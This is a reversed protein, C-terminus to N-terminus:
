LACVLAMKKAKLSTLPKNGRTKNFEACESQTVNHANGLTDAMDNIASNLFYAAGGGLLAAPLVYAAFALKLSM